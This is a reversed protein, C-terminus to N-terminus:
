TYLKTTLSFSTLFPPGGLCALPLTVDVLPITGISSEQPATTGLRTSTGLLYSSRRGQRISHRLPYRRKRQRRTRFEDPELHGGVGAWYGPASTATPALNSPQCQDENFLFVTTMQRTTHM